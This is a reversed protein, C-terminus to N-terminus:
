GSSKVKVKDKVNAVSKEVAVSKNKISITRYKLCIEKNYIIKGTEWQSSWTPYGVTCYYARTIVKAGTDTGCIDETESQRGEVEEKRTEDQRKGPREM